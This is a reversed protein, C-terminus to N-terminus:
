EDAELIVDVMDGVNKMSVVSKMPFKMDFEEEVEAILTIHMLSDWGAVDAATTEETVTIADDDFVECFVQNLREFVESREM